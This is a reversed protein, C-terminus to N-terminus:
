TRNKLWKKLEDYSFTNLIQSKPILAKRAVTVGFRIDSYGDVSHADPSIAVFAGTDRILKGWRWDLDLRAPNANIEIAVKHRAATKIVEEMDIEFAKRGLLLRGTPHGLITTAPNKLAEIIRKTMTERDLGFRTHVSAIVIDFNELLKKPYDLSGDKLIDSEIGWLVNIKSNNKRISDIEKKQKHLAPEKLGNAYFASQSHDTIGIYQHEYKSAITVMEEITNIGDSYNSHNHFTGLIDKETILTNLKNNKSLVISFPDDRLEPPIYELGNNEFISKENSFSASPIMKVFEEPGTTRFLELGFKENPCKHIKIPLSNNEPKSLTILKKEIKSFTNKTGSILLEIQDLVEIKRRVQGTLSFSESSDMTGSILSEIEILKPEIDVYRAKGATANLYQVQELISAQAKVGFGKLDLLRNERCAYELEAISEIGLKEILLKAKSPGLGPVNTLELLGKPLSKILEQRTQSQGNELFETLIEEIGKGIGPIKTISGDKIREIVDPEESLIKAGKELARTKFPNEGALRM